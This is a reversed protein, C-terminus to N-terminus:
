KLMIIERYQQPMEEMYKMLAPYNETIKRTIKVIAQNLEKETKMISRM